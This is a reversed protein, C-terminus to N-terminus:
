SVCPFRVPGAPARRDLRRNIAPVLNACRSGATVFVVVHAM